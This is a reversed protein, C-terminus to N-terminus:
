AEWQWHHRGFEQLFNWFWGSAALHDTPGSRWCCSNASWLNSVCKIPAIPSPGIPAPGIFISNWGYQHPGPRHRHVRDEQFAQHQGSPERQEPSGPFSDRRRHKIWVFVTRWHSHWVHPWRSAKTERRAPARSPRPSSPCLLYSWGRHCGASPEVQDCRTQGGAVLQAGEGWKRWVQCIEGQDLPLWVRPPLAVRRLWWLLLSAFGNRMQASSHPFTLARGRSPCSYAWLGPVCHPSRGTQTSEMNCKAVVSPCQHNGEPVGEESWTNYIGPIRKWM